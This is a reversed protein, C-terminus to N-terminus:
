ALTFAPMAMTLYAGGRMRQDFNESSLTGLASSEAGDLYRDLDSRASASADGQLISALMAAAAQSADTPANALWSREIARGTVLGALFNDRAIAMDSTLWNEGGPWGAVNPPFFLMQGMQRLAGRSRPDISALGAAKHAGVVFEVPSKVLARYARPSYFVNSQLLAGITPRLEYDHKRLLSATQTILADEPDNYLFANLLSTAFFRACQPQEFIIDVIDDGNLNGTHGLFSKVGDDHKRPNYRAVGRLPFVEYGTWARAAQRVDEETYAGLGLTFLEMLERAYNENPHAKNNRANDLYLLMAPDRSVAKTLDRLNGLAYRRFLQNQALTMPATVNKQLSATTFHGHFYFAMKEQLPAGANLMRQLWWQQLALISRHEGMRVRMFLARKEAVDESRLARFGGRAEIYAVADFIDSPPVVSEIPPMQMLSDVAREMGLAAVRSVETPDGGFGARRLLHAALRANWPGRYQSLADREDLRGTPRVLGPIDAHPSVTLASGM